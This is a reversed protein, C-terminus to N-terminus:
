SVNYKIRELWKNVDSKPIKIVSNQIDKIKLRYSRYIIMTPTVIKLELYVTTSYTM